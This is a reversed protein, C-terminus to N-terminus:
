SLWRAGGILLVANGVILRMAIISALPNPPLKRLLGEENVLLQHGEDLQILEVWGGVLKQADELKLPTDGEVVHLAVIEKARLEEAFKEISDSM